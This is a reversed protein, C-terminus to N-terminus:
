KEQQASPGNVRNKGEDTLELVGGWGIRVFRESIAERFVDNWTPPPQHWRAGPVLSLFRGLRDDATM